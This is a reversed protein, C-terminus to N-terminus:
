PFPLSSFLASSNSGDIDLANNFHMNVNKNKNERTSM